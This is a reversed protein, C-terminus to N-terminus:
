CLPFIYASDIFRISVSAYTLHNLESTPMDPFLQRHQVEDAIPLDPTQLDAQPAAYPNDINELM